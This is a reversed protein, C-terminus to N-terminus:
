RGPLTVQGGLSSELQLHVLEDAPTWLMGPASSVFAMPGASPSVWTDSRVIDQVHKHEPKGEGNDQTSIRTHELTRWPTTAPLAICRILDDELCRSLRVTATWLQHAVDELEPGMHLMKQLIAVQRQLVVHKTLMRSKYLLMSTERLDRFLYAHRLGFQSWSFRATRTYMRCSPSMHLMKQLIAVQMQLM